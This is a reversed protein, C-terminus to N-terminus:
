CYISKVRALLPLDEESLKGLKLWEILSKTLDINQGSLMQSQMLSVQVQMRQAKFEEPSDKSALIELELTKDSRDIVNKNQNCEQLRKQWNSPLEALSEALEDPTLTNSSAITNLCTFVNSWIIAQKDQNIKELQKSLQVLLKDALNAAVKVVPRQNIIETLLSNINEKVSLLDAESLPKSLQQQFCELQQTFEVQQQQRESQEAQKAADRKEFLQDNLRRFKQWLHNEERQGSYGITRWQAQLKKVNEIASFVDEDNLSQKAQAILLMKSETNAQQYNRLEVKVPQLNEIFHQNLSQFKNKDVQGSSQWQQQLKNLKGDIFKWDVTKNEISGNFTALFNDAFTKAQEILQRRAELHQERLKEQEAYFLRCPAFAQECLANFKHNLDKDLAEEAHGLANWTVRFQKVKTAQDNPNDFPQEVLLQIELLLEKKRPTAISQELDSLELIKNSVEDFDRQVRLKQIDSLLEFHKTVKKFVGFAANYKGTSILRNVDAIKKQCQSLLAGQEKILPKLGKQWQQQIEKFASVISEPLVGAAKKEVSQWEKLWQDFLPKRINLEDIDKPLAVQSIKSILHTAESVSQAIAPLQSLKKHHAEVLVIFSNQETANLVSSKIASTLQELESQYHQEDLNGSEFITTTLQQNLIKLQQNFGESASKKDQILKDIIIQQEFVEHLPAFHKALQKNIEQYKSNFNECELSTLCTFEHHYGHWQEELVTQKSKLQQYENIDKLALLKALVLQVGKKIKEPRATLEHLYIIKQEINSKIESNCAKKLLKELVEVTLAQELLYAQISEDQKNSFVSLTLQPKNIKEFLAIVVNTQNENQLWLDLAPLKHNTKLLALKDESSITIEHQGLLIKEVQKICYERVKKNDNDISNKQWSVFNAMKILAARRVLENKDGEALNTLIQIDDAASSSLETSIATLRVNHDKHQWKAKFFNSFIM